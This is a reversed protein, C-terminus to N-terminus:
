ILIKNLYNQEDRKQYLLVASYFADKIYKAENKTLKRKFSDPLCAIIDEANFNQGYLVAKGKNKRKKLSM